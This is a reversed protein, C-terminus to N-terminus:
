DSFIFRFFHHFGPVFSATTPQSNRAGSAIPIMAKAIKGSMKEKNKLKVFQFRTPPKASIFHTPKSLKVLSISSELNKFANCFLMKKVAMVTGTPKITAMIIATIM